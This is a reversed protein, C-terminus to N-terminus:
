KISEESRESHGHIDSRGLVHYVFLAIVRFLVVRFSSDLMIVLSYHTAFGRTM